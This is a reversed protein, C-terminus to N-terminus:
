SRNIRSRMEKGAKFSPHAKKGVAVVAGNRPNRAVRPSRLRVSFNGFGRLEVRDGRAMAAVIEALIADVIKEADRHYLHPNQRHIIKALDPKLM